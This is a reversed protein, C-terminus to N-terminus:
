GRQGLLSNGVDLTHQPGVVKIRGFMEVHQGIQVVRQTRNRKITAVLVVDHAAALHDDDVFKGASQHFPAAIRFPQVLRDLGFLPDLNLFFRHRQGRDGELIEEAHVVLQGAHGASGFCLFFLKM